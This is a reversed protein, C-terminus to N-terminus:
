KRIVFLQLMLMWSLFLIYPFIFSTYIRWVSEEPKKLLLSVLYMSVFYSLFWGYIFINLFPLQGFTFFIPISLLLLWMFSLGSGMFFYNRYPKQFLAPNILQAVYVCVFMIFSLVSYALLPKLDMDAFVNEGSLLIVPFFIIVPLYTLGTFFLFFIGSAFLSMKLQQTM